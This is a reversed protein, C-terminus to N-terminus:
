NGIFVFISMKGSEARGNSAVRTGHHPATKREDVAPSPPGPSKRSSSEGGTKGTIADTRSIASQIRTSTAEVADKERYGSRSSGKSPPADKLGSGSDLDPPPGAVKGSIRPSSKKSMAIENQGEYWEPSLKVSEGDWERQEDPVVSAARPQEQSKAGRLDVRGSEEVHSHSSDVGSDLGSDPTAKGRLLNFAKKM